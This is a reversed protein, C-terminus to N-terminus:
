ACWHVNEFYFSVSLCPPTNHSNADFFFFPSSHWGIDPVRKVYRLTPITRIGLILRSLHKIQFFRPCKVPSQQIWRAFLKGRITKGRNLERLISTINTFLYRFSEQLFRSLIGVLPPLFATTQSPEIDVSPEDTIWIERTQKHRPSTLFALLCPSARGLGLSNAKMLGSVRDLRSNEADPALQASARKVRVSYITICRRLLIRRRRLNQVRRNPRFKFIEARVRM